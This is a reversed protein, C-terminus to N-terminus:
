ATLKFTELPMVTKRGGMNVRNRVKHVHQIVHTDTNIEWFELVTWLAAGQMPLIEGMDLGTEHVEVEKVEKM